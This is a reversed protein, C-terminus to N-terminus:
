YQIETVNYLHFRVTQVKSVPKVWEIFNGLFEGLNNSHFYNMGKYQLIGNWPIFAGIKKDM